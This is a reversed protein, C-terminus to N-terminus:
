FVKKYKYLQVGKIKVEVYGQNLENFYQPTIFVQLYEASLGAGSNVEINKGNQYFSWSTNGSSVSDKRILDNYLFEGGAKKLHKIMNVTIVLRGTSQKEVEKIEVTTNHGNYIALNPHISKGKELKAWDPNYNFDCSINGSTHRITYDQQKLIDRFLNKSYSSSYFSSNYFGNFILIFLCCCMVVILMKNKQMERVLKM